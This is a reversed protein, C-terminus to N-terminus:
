LLNNDTSHKGSVLTIGAIKGTQKKAREWKCFAFRIEHLLAVVPTAEHQYCCVEFWVSVLKREKLAKKAAIPQLISIL